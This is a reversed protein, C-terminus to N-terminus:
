YVKNLCFWFNLVEFQRGMESDLEGTFRAFDAGGAPGGWLADLMAAPPMAPPAGAPAPPPTEPPPERPEGM